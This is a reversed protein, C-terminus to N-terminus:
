ETHLRILGEQMVSALLTGDESYFSGRTYGRAGAAAPSDRLYLIWDNVSFPRHFWLAHDLSAMQIVPHNDKFAQGHPIMATSILSMDSAYSLLFQQEPESEIKEGRFRIWSAGGYEGQQHITRTEFPRLRNVLAAKEGAGESDDELEDPKPYAKQLDVQHSLGPEQVQLSVDMSFIAEGNQIAKIRRTTFSRGDRIPEVQYLVPRGADGPRLFYGHLSHCIRDPVVTRYAAALAQALVQGGFLRKHDRAENQGRYLNDEITELNLVSFLEDAPNSM